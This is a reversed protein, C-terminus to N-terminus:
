EGTALEYLLVGLAWVDSRVDAPHGLLIEPAMHSLTGVLNGQGTLSSDSSRSGTEPLHKALGFDLVIARGDSRVVINSSKLDRHIVGHEHAHVLANVVQIAYDLADGLSPAAERVIANLTRGNVYEMVIFPAGNAEGVEYITCVNPHALMSANQAERLLRRRASVDAAGPGITKVAVERGLVTHRARYVEGMGGAAIFGIIEYQGLRDGPALRPRLPPQGAPVDRGLLAAAPTECFSAAASDSALLSEVEDRLEADGACAQAVYNGREADPRELAEVFVAKARLWFLEEPAGTALLQGDAGGSSRSPREPPM